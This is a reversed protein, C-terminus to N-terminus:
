RWARTTKGISELGDNNPVILLAREPFGFPLHVKPVPFARGTTTAMTEQQRSLSKVPPQFGPSSNTLSLHFLQPSLSLLSPPPPPTRNRNHTKRNSEQVFLKLFCELEFCWGAREGRLAPIGISSVGRTVSAKEKSKQPESGERGLILARNATCQSSQYITYHKQCDAKRTREEKKSEPETEGKGSFQLLACLALLSSSLTLSFLCRPRRPLLFCLPLSKQLLLPLFSSFLWITFTIKIM